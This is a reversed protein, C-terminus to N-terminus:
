AIAYKVLWKWHGENSAANYGSGLRDIIPFKIKSAKNVNM